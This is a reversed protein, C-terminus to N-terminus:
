TLRFHRLATKWFENMIIVYIQKISIRLSHLLIFIM